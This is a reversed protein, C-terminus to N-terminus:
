LKFKLILIEKGFHLNHKNGSLCWHPPHCHVCQCLRHALLARLVRIWHPLQRSSQKRFRCLWHLWLPYLVHNHNVSGCLFGEEDGQERTTSVKIHGTTYIDINTHLCITAPNSALIFYMYYLIHQSISIPFRFYLFFLFVNLVM